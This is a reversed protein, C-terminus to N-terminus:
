EVKKGPPTAPLRKVLIRIEISTIVIGAGMGIFLLKLVGLVAVLTVAPASHLAVTSNTQIGVLEQVSYLFSQSYTIGSYGEFRVLLVTSVPLPM